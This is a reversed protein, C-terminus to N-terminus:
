QLDFLPYSQRRKDRGGEEMEVEDRFIPNDPALKPTASIWESEPKKRKSPAFGHRFDNLFM